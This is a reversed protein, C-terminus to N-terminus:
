AETPRRRQESVVIECRRQAAGADRTAASVTPGAAAFPREARIAGCQAFFTNTAVILMSCYMSNGCQDLPGCYAGVGLENGQDGLCGCYSIGGFEAPICADGVADSASADSADSATATDSAGSDAQGLV